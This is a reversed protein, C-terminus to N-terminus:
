LSLEGLFKNETMMKRVGMDKWVWLVETSVYISISAHKHVRGSSCKEFYVGNDM